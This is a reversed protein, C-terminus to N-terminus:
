SKMGIIEDKRFLKMSGVYGYVFVVRKKPTTSARPNKLIGKPQPAAKREVPGHQQEPTSSDRPANPQEERPGHNGPANCQQKLPSGRKPADRRRAAGSREAVPKRQVVGNDRPVVRQESVPRRDPIARRKVVGNRQGVGRNATTVEGGVTARRESVTKREPVAIGKTLDGLRVYKVNKMVVKHGTASRDVVLNEIEISDIHGFVFNGKTAEGFKWAYSHKAKKTPTEDLSTGAYARKAARPSSPPTVLGGPTSRRLLKKPARPPQPAPPPPPTSPPAFSYRKTLAAFKYSEPEPAPSKVFKDGQELGHPPSPPPIRLAPRNSRIIPIVEDEVDSMPTDEDDTNCINTIKMKSESM